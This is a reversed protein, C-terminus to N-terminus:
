PLTPFRLFFWTGTRGAVEVEGVIGRKGTLSLVLVGPLRWGKRGEISAEPVQRGAMECFGTGGAKRLHQYYIFGKGAKFEEETNHDRMDPLSFRDAKSTPCQFRDPSDM